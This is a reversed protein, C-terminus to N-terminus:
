RYYKRIIIKIGTPYSTIKKKMRSKDIQFKRKSLKKLSKDSKNIRKFNWSKNKNIKNAKIGEINNIKAKITWM